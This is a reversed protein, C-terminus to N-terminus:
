HCGCCVYNRKLKGDVVSFEKEPEAKQEFTIKDSEKLFDLFKKACTLVEDKVTIRELRLKGREDYELYHENPIDIEVAYLPNDVQALAMSEVLKVKKVGGVRVTSGYKHNFIKSDKGDMKFATPKAILPTPQLIGRATFSKSISDACQGGHNGDMVMMARAVSDYFRPRAAAHQIAGYLVTAAQDRTVALADHQSLGQKVNKDFQACIFDYFAGTFVRSFSHPEGSLADLGSNQPLQEPPTYRFNNIANRLATEARGLSAYVAAGMEEALRSVANPKRLDGGTEKIVYDIVESHWLASLIANMDGFSEHFATVELSATSWLDPRYADLIAHGLEHSVVDASECTYVIKGTKPHTGYFFKLSYGDYYANFQQGARPIVVLNQTRSWKTVPTISEKQIMELSHVLTTYVAAAQVEITGPAGSSGTFGHVTFPPCPNPLGPIAEKIILPVAPDNVNYEILGMAAATKNLLSSFYAKIKNM